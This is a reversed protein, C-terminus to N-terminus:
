FPLDEDLQELSDTMQEPPLPKKEERPEANGGKSGHTSEVRDCIIDTTYITNGDKNKYSGTEIRGVVAIEDGKSKYNELYEASKGFAKCNIFDVEDKGFPRPVALRFSAIKVKETDRISPDSTMRGILQVSNM